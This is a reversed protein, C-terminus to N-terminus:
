STMCTAFSCMVFVFYLHCDRRSMMYGPAPTPTYDVGKKKRLNKIVASEAFTHGCLNVDM